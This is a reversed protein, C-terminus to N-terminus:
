ETRGTKLDTLQWLKSPYRERNEALAVRAWDLSEYYTPMGYGGTHAAQEVKAAFEGAALRADINRYTSM